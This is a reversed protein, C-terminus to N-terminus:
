KTRTKSTEQPLFKSFQNEDKKFFYIYEISYIERWAGSEGCAMFKSPHM